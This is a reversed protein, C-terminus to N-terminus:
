PPYISGLMPLSLESLLHCPLIYHLFTTPKNYFNYTLPACVCVYPHSTSWTRLRCLDLGGQPRRLETSCESSVGSWCNLIISFSNLNKRHFQCCIFFGDWEYCVVSNREWVDKGGFGLEDCVLLQGEEEQQSKFLGWAKEGVWGSRAKAM